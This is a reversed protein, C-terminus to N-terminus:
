GVRIQMLKKMEPTMKMGLGLKISTGTRKTTTKRRRNMITSPLLKGTRKKSKKNKYKRKTAAKAEEKMEKYKGHTIIYPTIKAVEEKFRKKLVAMVRFMNNPNVLIGDFLRDCIKDTTSVKIHGLVKFAKDTLKKNEIDFTLKQTGKDGEKVGVEHFTANQLANDMSKVLDTAAAFVVQFALGQQIDEVEDRSKAKLLQLVTDDVVSDM